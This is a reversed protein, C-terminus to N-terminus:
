VCFIRVESGVSRSGMSPNSAASFEAVLKAATRKLSWAHTLVTDEPNADLASASPVAAPKIREPCAVRTTAPPM